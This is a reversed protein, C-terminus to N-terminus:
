ERENNANKMADALRQNSPDLQKPEQPTNTKRLDEILQKGILQNEEQDGMLLSEVRASVREVFDEHREKSTQEQEPSNDEKQNTNDDPPLMKYANEDIEDISWFDKIGFYIKDILSMKIKIDNKRGMEKYMKKTLKATQYLEMKRSSTIEKNRRLGKYDYTIEPLADIDENKYDQTLETFISCANIYKDLQEENLALGLVINKDFVTYNAQAESMRKQAYESLKTEIEDASMENVKIIDGDLNISIEEIKSQNTKKSDSPQKKETQIPQAQQEPSAEPQVPPTQQVPTVEPQVPPTQQVPTVEPQVPPTQQVPTVKPQVSQAQQAPEQQQVPVVRPQVPLTQQAPEAREILDNETIIYTKQLIDGRAGNGELIRYEKGNINVTEGSILKNITEDSVEVSISQFSNRIRSRFLESTPDVINTIFAFIRETNTNNKNDKKQEDEKVISSDTKNGKTNSDSDTNEETSQEKNNEKDNDKDKKKLGYKIELNNISKIDSALKNKNDEKKRANKELRKEITKLDESLEDFMEKYEDKEESSIDPNQMKNYLEHQLNAKQEHEELLRAERTNYAAALRMRKEIFRYYKKANNLDRKLIGKEKNNAKKEAEHIKTTLLEVLEDKM